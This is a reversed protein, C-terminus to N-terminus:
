KHRAMDDKGRASQAGPIIEGAKTLAIKTLTPGVLTNLAENPLFGTPIFLATLIGWAIMAGINPMVMGSLFGGIKQTKAKLGNSSM